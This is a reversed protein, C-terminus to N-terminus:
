GACDAMASLRSRTFAAATALAELSEVTVPHTVTSGNMPPKVRALIVSDVTREGIGAYARIDTAGQPARGSQCRDGAVDPRSQFPPKLSTEASQCRQERPIPGVPQAPGISGHRLMQHLAVSGEGFEPGTDGVIAFGDRDRYRVWAVAGVLDPRSTPVVLAPVAASDIYATTGGVRQRLSTTSLYPRITGGAAAPFPAALVPRGKGGGVLYRGGSQCPTRTGSPAMPAVEMAFVCFQPSAPGFGLTEARLWERRCRGSNGEASCSLFGGPVKLNVGNAVYTYGHDGPVYSGAAGDPNVALDTRMAISGDPFVVRGGNGPTPCSVTQAAAPAFSLAFSLIAPLAPRM